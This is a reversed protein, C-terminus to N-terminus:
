LMCQRANVLVCVICSHEAPVFEQLKSMKPVDPPGLVSRDRSDLIDLGKPPEAVLRV